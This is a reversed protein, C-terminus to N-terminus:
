EPVKKAIGLFSFWDGVSSLDVGRIDRWVPTRGPWGEVAAVHVPPKLFLGKAFAEQSANLQSVLPVGPPEQIRVGLRAAITDLGIDVPAFGFIRLDQADDWDLKRFSYAQKCKSCETFGDTPGDYFGTAITREFPLSELVGNVLLKCCRM